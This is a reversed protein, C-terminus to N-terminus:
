HIDVANIKFRRSLARKVEEVECFVRKGIKHYPFFGRSKWEAFQRKSIAEKGTGFIAIRTEEIGLLRSSSTATIDDM